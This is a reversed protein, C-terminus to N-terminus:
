DIEGKLSLEITSRTVLQSIVDGFLQPSKAYSPMLTPDLMHHRKIVYPLM